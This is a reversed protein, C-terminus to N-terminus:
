WYRRRWYRRRWPRRWYYRRRWYRRPRWYYRRRWHRRASLDTAEAADIDLESARTEAVQGEGTRAQNPEPAATSGAPQAPELAKAEASPILLRPAALLAGALGLTALADRRSPAARTERGFIGRLFGKPEM